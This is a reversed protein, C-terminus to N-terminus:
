KRYYAVLRKVARIVDAHDDDAMKSFLPLTIMKRYEAEAVPFDGRRFGFKRRYYPQLHVPMYHVSTGINESRLAEMFEDRSCRLRDLRLRLVYIHWASTTGPLVSPTQLEPVDAFAKNYTTALKNRRATFGDVRKLQVLGLAAQMDTLVSKFGLVHMRPYGLSGRQSRSLYDERFGHFRLARLAEALKKHPTTVIAGEGTTMNKVPHFSFCQADGRSGVPDGAIKAGIAHCADEVIPIGHSRAIRRLPRMDCPAGTMHVPLLVKTKRSLRREVQRPDINLTDPDIDAFVPTGGAHVVGNATAVFTLPSTIVEDGPGVGLGLMTLQLAATGTALAVAHKAGVYEAFAAEFERVRPGTTLWGHRLVELVAKEEEVGVDHFGYPLFTRRVPKGGAVAPLDVRRVASM